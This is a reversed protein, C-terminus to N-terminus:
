VHARGIKAEAQEEIGMTRVSVNGGRGRVTGSPLEVMWANIADAVATIPIGHEVLRAPEVEVRVEYDRLGSIQLSGMGPLSELDDAIGRLGRKITREDADGYLTLIVVPLNPEFEIVRIREAEQPLDALREIVREVDEVGEEVDMLRLWERAIAAEARPFRLLYEALPRAKGDLSDEFFMDGFDLLEPQVDEEGRPGLDARTETPDNPPVM